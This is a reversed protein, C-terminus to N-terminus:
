RSAGQGAGASASPSIATWPGAPVELRKPTAAESALEHAALFTLRAVREIKGPLVRDATDGPEHYDEHTGSFLSVTPVGGLWM